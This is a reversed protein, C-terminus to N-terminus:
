LSWDAMYGLQDIHCPKAFLPRRAKYPAGVVLWGRRGKLGGGRELPPQSDRVVFLSGRDM